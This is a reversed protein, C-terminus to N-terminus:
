SLSGPCPLHSNQCHTNKATLHACHPKTASTTLYYISFQFHTKRLVSAPGYCISLLHTIPFHHLSFMENIRFCSTPFSPLVTKIHSIICEVKLSGM